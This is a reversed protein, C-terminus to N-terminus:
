SRWMKSLRCKGEENSMAMMGTDGLTEREEYGGSSVWTRPDHPVRQPGSTEQRRGTPHHGSFPRRLTAAMERGAEGKVGEWTM